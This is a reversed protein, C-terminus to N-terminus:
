PLRKLLGATIPDFPHPLLEVIKYTAINEKRQPGRLTALIVDIDLGFEAIVQRCAGCPLATRGVVCIAQIEREGKCVANFIATREACIVLGFSSNEINCGSFIKGSRTLVSAGVAFRSYPCYALDRAKKAEHILKKQWKHVQM